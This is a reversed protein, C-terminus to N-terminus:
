KKWQLRAKRLHEAAERGREGAAYLDLYTQALGTTYIGPAPEIFDRLPGPEDLVTIVLNEGRSAPSLKLADRLRQAGERDAYFYQTGTRGYPALWNAASFSALIALGRDEAAEGGMSRLADDLSSGHMTTYFTWRHGAPPQYEERWADLLADPNSLFVGDDSVEAWGRDLLGSRVYSVQGASVDATRSLDVVRWAQSPDRLMTRLVQASKPKFLSRLERRETQPKSAVERSLFFGPFAIRTNGEFDLYGVQSEICLARASESLYPAIVLPTIPQAQEQAYRKLQFLASKVHRPQGSAKVEAVVVRREGHHDIHAVLDVGPDHAKESDIVLKSHPVDQLARRLADAALQDLKVSSTVNLM